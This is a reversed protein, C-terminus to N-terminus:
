SIGGRGTELGRLQKLGKVVSDLAFAATRLEKSNIELGLRSALLLKTLGERAQELFDVYDLMETLATPTLFNLGLLADVTNRAQAEEVAAFKCNEETFLAACRLFIAKKEQGFELDANKVPKLTKRDFEKIHMSNTKNLKSFAKDVDTPDCYASFAEKIVELSAGTQPLDRLGPLSSTVFYSDGSRRVHIRNTPMTKENARDADDLHVEEGVKVFKWDEHAFVNKDKRALGSFAASKYLNLQEGYETEIRTFEPTSFLVAFPPTCVAQGEKIVYLVGRGEMDESNNWTFSTADTAGVVDARGFDGTKNDIATVKSAVEGKFNAVKNFCFADFSGKSSHVRYIGADTVPAFPMHEIVELRGIESAEAEKVVGKTISRKIGEAFAPAANIAYTLGTESFARNLAAEMQESDVSAFSYKGTHPPIAAARLGVDGGMSSSDVPEGIEHGQLITQVSEKTMPLLQNDYRMIDLPQLQFANIVLPVQIKDDISLNGVATGIDPEQKHLNVEMNHEPIYPHEKHLVDMIDKEWQKSDASLRSSAEKVHSTDPTLWLDPLQSM